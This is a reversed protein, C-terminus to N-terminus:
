RSRPSENRRNISISRKMEQYLEIPDTLRERIIQMSRSPYIVIRTYARTFANVAPNEENLKIGAIAVLNSAIQKGEDGEKRLLYHFVPLDFNSYHEMLLLTSEGNKAHEYLNKLNDLGEIRSGDELHDAIIADIFPLIQSIGEQYVDLESVRAEKPVHAVIEGVLHAYKSKITDM